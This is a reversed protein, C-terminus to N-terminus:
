LIVDPDVGVLLTLNFLGHTWAAVGPGRLRFVLGLLIGSLALWTFLAPDFAAGGPGLWAIFARQHALAFALASGLLGATEAVTSCVRPGCGLGKLSARALLFLLGYGGVRFLLEEWAAGGFVLAADSLPPSRGKPVWAADLRPLWGSSLALLTVLVPGLVVALGVGELVVRAVAPAPRVERRHLWLWAGAAVAAVLGWRALPQGSGLPELSYLMLREATSRRVGGSAHLALEYALFLPLMSLWGVALGTLLAPREFEGKDSKGSQAPWRVALASM